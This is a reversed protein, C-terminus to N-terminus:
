CKILAFSQFSVAASQNKNWQSFDMWKLFVTKRIENREFNHHKWYLDFCFTSCNQFFRSEPLQRRLIFSKIKPEWSQHMDVHFVFGLHKRFTLCTLPTLPARNRTALYIQAGRLTYVLSFSYIRYRIRSCELGSWRKGQM